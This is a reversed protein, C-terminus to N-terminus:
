VLSKALKKAEENGLCISTALMSMYEYGVRKGIKHWCTPCFYGGINEDLQIATWGSEVGSDSKKQTDCILCTMMEGEFVDKRPTGIGVAQKTKRKLRKAM